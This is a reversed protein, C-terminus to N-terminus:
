LYVSVSLGLSTLLSATDLVDLNRWSIRGYLGASVRPHFVVDAKLTFGGIFQVEDRGFSGERCAVDCRFLAGGHVGVTVDLDDTTIAWGVDGTMLFPAGDTDITLGQLMFTLHRRYFVALEAGLALNQRDRPAAFGGLLSFRMTFPRERRAVIRDYLSPASPPPRPASAAPPPPPPAPPAEAVLILREREAAGPSLSVEAEAGRFGARTLAVRHTGAPLSAVHPTVGVSETAGDLFVSAGAPESEVTLTAPIARLRALAAEGETREADTTAMAVYRAYQEIARPVEGAREWSRAANFVAHPHPLLANAETFGEAAARWDGASFAAEAQAFARQAEVRRAAPTPQSLAAGGHLAFALAISVLPASGGHLRPGM